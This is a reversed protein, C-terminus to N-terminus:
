PKQSTSRARIEHFDADSVNRDRGDGNRESVRSWFFSAAVDFAASTARGSESRASTRSEFVGNDAFLSAARDADRISALYDLLLAKSDKM